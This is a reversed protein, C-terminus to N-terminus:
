IVNFLSLQTTKQFSLQAAQLQMQRKSFDSIAKAYDLDQLDSIRQDYLLAADEGASQLGELSQLRAGVSARRNSIHDIAAHMDGLAQDYAAQSFPVGSAPDLIDIANKVSDFISRGTLNGQGDRVQIFVDLGNETTAMTQSPSVQLSQVGADGQYTVYPNAPPAIQYTGGAGTVQIPQVDSQFGSFVYLGAADRSNALTVLNDFRQKLETAIYGRDAATLVGNGAETVRALITQLEESAQGLKSEVLNLQTTAAAQNELFQNNVEKSQTAVLAQSAGIPDDAPSLIRRGTSMQNQLRFLDAQNRQIGLIGMDFIQTTSVRM